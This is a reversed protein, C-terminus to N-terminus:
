FINTPQTPGRQDPWTPRAVNTPGRQDPWTPRAVNTPGRQDACGVGLALNNDM